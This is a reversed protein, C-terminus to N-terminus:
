RLNAMNAILDAVSSAQGVGRQLDEIGTSPRGNEGAANLQAFLNEQGPTLAAAQPPTGAPLENAAPDPSGVGFATKVSTVWSKIAEPDTDGTYLAAAAKPVGLDEFVSSVQYAKQTALVDALQKSLEDNKKQVSEAWSRLGKATNDQNQSGDNLNANENPDFGWPDTMVM